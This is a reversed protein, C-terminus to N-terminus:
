RAPGRGGGELDVLRRRVRKEHVLRPMEGMHPELDQEGRTVAVGEVGEGLPSDARSRGRERRRDEAGRLARHAREAM